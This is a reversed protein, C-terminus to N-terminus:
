ARPAWRGEQHAIQISISIVKRGEIMKDLLPPPDIHSSDSILPALRKCCVGTQGVMGVLGGPPVEDDAVGAAHLEDVVKSNSHAVKAGGMGCKGEMKVEFGWGVGSVVKTHGLRQFFKNLLLETGEEPRRGALWVAAVEIFFVPGPLTGVICM